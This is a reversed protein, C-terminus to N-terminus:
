YTKTMREPIALIYDGRGLYDQDLKDVQEQEVTSITVIKLNPNIQRLYWVIGEKKDSHFGGNFHLFLEGESWNGYIFHAMTADKIMQAQPYYKPDETMGHTNMELMEKYCSIDYDEKIPLPAIFVKSYEPLNELSKLGNKFVASAYRRPVNTAVFSLNNEKAFSVLPKYDTNYNPWLRTEKQFNKESIFGLFYENLLLQNDSEFMEAGLVLNESEQAYLDRTIELQLWHCIPNNHLEGFFVIDASELDKLMKNYAVEKGKHNFLKYAKPQQQAYVMNTALLLCLIRTTLTM